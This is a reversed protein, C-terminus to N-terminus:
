HNLILRGADRAHQSGTTIGTIAAFQEADFKGLPSVKEVAIGSRECFAILLKAHAMNEGIGQAIRAYYAPGKQKKKDYREFMVTKLSPDEIVVLLRDGHQAHFQPLLEVTHWFDLTLLTMPAALRTDKHAFGTKSGPDIGIYCDYIPAPAPRWGRRSVVVPTATEVAAKKKRPGAGAREMVSKFLEPDARLQASTYKENTSM